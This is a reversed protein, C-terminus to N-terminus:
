SRVSDVVSIGSASTCSGLTTPLAASTQVVTHLPTLFHNVVSGECGAPNRLWCLIHLMCPFLTHTFLQLQLMCPFFSHLCSCNCCAPFSHTYVAATAAHLSLTHTYVAATAAHLSLTHTYATAAHLSLILTFLQLQLMCPFLTLTFLQLQLMCPFFSHLFSCNCCAPFSHTYFAATAAHLSLILTFLQLQLMCPIHTYVAATAARLSLTHLCNCCAPFSDTFNFKRQQYYLDTIFQVQAALLLCKHHVSSTSSITFIQSLSFKCQEDYFDTIFQFIFHVQSSM